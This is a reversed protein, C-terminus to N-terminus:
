LLVAVLHRCQDTVVGPGLGDRGAAGRWGDDVEVVPRRDCASQAVRVRGDVGGAGPVGLAGVQIGRHGARGDVREGAGPLGVQM